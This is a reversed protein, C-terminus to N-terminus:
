AYHSQYVPKGNWPYFYGLRKGRDCFPYSGILCPESANTGTRIRLKFQEGYEKDPIVMEAMPSLGETSHITESMMRCIATKGSKTFGVVKLFDINTQDYGWSEYFIDGIKVNPLQNTEWGSFKNEQCLQV